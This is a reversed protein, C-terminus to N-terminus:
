KATVATRLVVPIASSLPLLWSEIAVAFSSISICSVIHRKQSSNFCTFSLPAMLTPVLGGPDPLVWTGGVDSLATIGPLLSCREPLALLFCPQSVSQSCDFETPTLSGSVASVEWVAVNLNDSAPSTSRSAAKLLHM